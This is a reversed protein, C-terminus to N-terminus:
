ELCNLSLTAFHVSQGFKDEYIVYINGNNNDVNVDVYGGREADIVCHKTWDKGDNFSAKLTVNRRETKSECNAFLLVPNDQNYRYSAVSGFCQPDILSKEPGYEMWDSYGNKSIARARWANVCRINLYVSGDSLEAASTENPSQLDFNSGLIDGLMWSEGNDDSFFTTVVSPSHAKPASEYFKPVMWVPVVLRGSSLCIGHGPGFAFANRYDPSTLTTIEIKESWTIGDDDSYRRFIGAGDIGYDKCYLFHIRGKNDQIMVPNNVTKHELTGEALKIAKSFSKGFDDSRQLLIDMLSWDGAEYRAEHYILVTGASTVILGPIRHRAYGDDGRMIEYSVFDNNM